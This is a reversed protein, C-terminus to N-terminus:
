DSSGESGGPVDAAEIELQDYFHGVLTQVLAIATNANKDHRILQWVRSFADGCLAKLLPLAQSADFEGDRAIADSIVLQRELTDPATIVIPPTVDDIVFPEIQIPEPDGTSRRAAEARLDAFKYTPTSGATKAKKIKVKNSM